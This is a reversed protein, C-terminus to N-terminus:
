EYLCYEAKLSCILLLICIQLLWKGLIYISFKLIYARKNYLNSIKKFKM